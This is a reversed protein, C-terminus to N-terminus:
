AAEGFEESDQAVFCGGAIWHDKSQQRVRVIRVRRRVPKEGPFELLLLDNQSLPWPTQIRVGGRSLDRVRAHFPKGPPVGCEKMQREFVATVGIDCPRRPHLRREGGLTADNREPLESATAARIVPAAHGNARTPPTGPIQLFASLPRRRGATRDPVARAPDEELLRLVIGRWAEFVEADFQTGSADGMLALTDLPPTPGRYPRAATIADYVDVVACVRAAFSIKEGSLGAPYGSGDMREHHDRTMELVVGATSQQQSLEDYGLAPHKRIQEWEWDTLKGEKNLIDSPIGRKGVDHLLGGQIALATAGEDGGLMEKVLLGCGVGVNVMHTITYYDHESMDLIYAFNTEDDRALRAFVRGIEEIAGITGPNGPFLMVDEVMRVCSARVMRGREARNKDPAQFEKELRRALSERYSAHQSMPVYLFEVGQELLRERERWTFEVGTGRYLTLEAASYRIYLDMKLIDNDVSDIHVPFFNGASIEQAQVANTM